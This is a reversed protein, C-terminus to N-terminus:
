VGSEPLLCFDRMGLLSSLAFSRSVGGRSEAFSEGVAVVVFLFPSLISLIPLFSLFLRSRKNWGINFCFLPANPLLQHWIQQPLSLLARIGAADCRMGNNVRGGAEWNRWNQKLTHRPADLSSDRCSLRPQTTPTINTPSWSRRALFPNPSFSLRPVLPIKPLPLSQPRVCTCAFEHRHASLCAAFRPTPTLLHRSPAKPARGASQLHM